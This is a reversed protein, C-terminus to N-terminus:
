RGPGRTYSIFVGRDKLAAIQNIEADETLPNLTIFVQDGEGIGRNEVLPTLDRILNGDLFVKELQGLEKLPGIDFIENHQAWLNILSTCNELSSIDGVKNEILLLDQLNILSGLSSINELGNNSLNLARLNVLKELPSLDFVRNGQLDLSELSVLNAIPTLDWIFNPLTDGGVVSGLFLGKLNICYELGDLKEVAGNPAGLSEISALDGATVPRELGGLEERIVDELNGDPIEVLLDPDDPVNFGDPIESVPEPTDASPEEPVATEEPPAPDAKENACATFIISVLLAPIILM